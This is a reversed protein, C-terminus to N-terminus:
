VQQLVMMLNKNTCNKLYKDQMKGIELKINYIVKVLDIKLNKIM